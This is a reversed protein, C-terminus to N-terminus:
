SPIHAYPLRVRVCTGVIVPASVISLDGGLERVLDRVVTLGLGTGRRGKTTYFPEFVRRQLAPEIGPGGDLVELVIHHIDRDDRLTVHIEPEVALTSRAWGRDQRTVAIAEFANSILNTVIQHLDDPRALIPPLSEEVELEIRPRPDHGSRRMFSVSDRVLEGVDLNRHRPRTSRLPALIREVGVGIRRVCDKAAGLVEALDGEVIQAEDLLSMCALLPGLDNKIEHAAGSSVMAAGALRDARRLRERLDEGRLPQLLGMVWSGPPEGAEIPPLECGRLILSAPAAGDRARVVVEQILQAGPQAAIEPILDEIRRGFPEAEFLETTGHELVRELSAGTLALISPSLDLLRGSGDWTLVGDSGAEFLASLLASRRELQQREASDRLRREVALAYARLGREIAARLEPQTAPKPLFDFAGARIAELAGDREDDGTMLIVPLEPELAQIASLLELGGIRPLRMSMLVLEFGGLALHELARPASDAWLGEWGEMRVRDLLDHARTLEAEVVLIQAGREVKQKPESM